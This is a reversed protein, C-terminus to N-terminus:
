IFLHTYISIKGIYVCIRRYAYGISQISFPYTPLILLFSHGSIFLFIKEQDM